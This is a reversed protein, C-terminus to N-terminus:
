LNYIKIPNNFVLYLILICLGLILNDNKINKNYCILLTILPLHHFVLDCLKLLNNEVIINTNILLLKKPYIYTLFIGYISVIVSCMLLSYQFKKAINLHYLIHFVLIHLTLYSKSINFTIKLIKNVFKLFKNDM